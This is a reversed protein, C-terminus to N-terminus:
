YSLKITNRADQRIDVLRKYLDEVPYITSGDEAVPVIFSFNNYDVSICNLEKISINDIGLSELSWTRRELIYKAFRKDISNAIHQTM